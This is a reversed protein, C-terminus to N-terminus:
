KITLVSIPIGLDRDAQTIGATDLDGLLGTCSGQIGTVNGRIGTCEGILAASIVGTLNRADGVLDPSIGGSLKLPDINLIADHVGVLSPKSRTLVPIM